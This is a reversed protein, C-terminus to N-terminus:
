RPTQEQTAPPDCCRRLVELLQAQTVPKRLYATAGLSLALQPQDLVSCIVIPIGATEPLRRLQALLHWGDQGPMLVDLLVIAPTQKRCIAIAEQVSAAHILSWDQGELYLRFLDALDLNNDVLLILRSAMRCPFALELIHAAPLHTLTAGAERLFAITMPEIKDEVDASLADSGEIYLLVRDKARGSKIVLNGGAQETAAWSLLMLLGQRLLGPRADAWLETLEADMCLTADLERLTPGLLEVVDRLLASLDARMPLEDQAVRRLEDLAPDTEQDPMSISYSFCRQLLISRLADLAKGRERYYQSKGLCLEEELEERSMGAVYYGELIRYPRWAPDEIPTNEPPHLAEIADMLTMRLSKGRSVGHSAGDESLIGALPSTELYSLDYLHDLARTLQEAFRDDMAQIPFFRSFTPVSGM